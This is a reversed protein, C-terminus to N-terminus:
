VDALEMDGIAPDIYADLWHVIQAVYAPSPCFLTLEPVGFVFFGWDIL